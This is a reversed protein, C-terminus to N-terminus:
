DEKTEGDKLPEIIGYGEQYRRYIVSFRGTDANEFLFFEHGLLELQEIAEEETMPNRTSEYRKRKVILSKNKTETYDEEMAELTSTPLWEGKHGRRHQKSKYRELQNRLKDEMVDIANEVTEAYAEARILVGPIVLTVQLKFRKDDESFRTREFDIRTFTSPDDVRPSIKAVNQIKDQILSEQEPDLKFGTTHFQFQM